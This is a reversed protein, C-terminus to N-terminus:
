LKIEAKYDCKIGCAALLMRHVRAERIFSEDSMKGEAIKEAFNKLMADYRNLPQTTTVTGETHWDAPNPDPRYVEKVNSTMLDTGKKYWELPKIEVTGLSGCIVCQRREFGGPEAMATKLFAVGKKYRFVAMGFDLSSVGFIGTNINYPIIEEPVGMFQYILDVLHCGLYFTMGGKFADLWQRKDNGYDCSMHTEVSYIEGLQGAKVKDYTNMVAQNFRYMYGICFVKGQRKLTSLMNEFDEAQESGPKDMFVHLGRDAAKQAYKVLNLDFTEVTAADLDPIAFAEELTLEQKQRYINLNNSYFEDEGKLKVYGVVDFIDTQKCLSQFIVSAHDHGVGIQVIKIKKM